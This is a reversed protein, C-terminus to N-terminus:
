VAFECRACLAARAAANGAAVRALLTLAIAQVRVRRSDILEMATATPRRASSGAQTPAEAWRRPCALDPFRIDSIVRRAEASPRARPRAAGSRAAQAVAQQLQRGAARRRHCREAKRLGSGTELELKMAYKEFFADFM